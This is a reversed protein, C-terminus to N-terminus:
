YVLYSFPALAPLTTSRNPPKPPQGIATTGSPPPLLAAASPTTGVPKRLTGARSPFSPTAQRTPDDVKRRCQSTTLTTIIEKEEGEGEGERAGEPGLTDKCARTTETAKKGTRGTGVEELHRTNNKERTRKGNPEDQCAGEVSGETNRDM